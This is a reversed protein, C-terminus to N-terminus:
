GQLAADRAQIAAINHAVPLKESTSTQTKAGHTFKKRAFVSIRAFIVWFTTNVWIDL